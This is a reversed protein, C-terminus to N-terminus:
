QGKVPELRYGYKYPRDPPIRYPEMPFANTSWSDIGGVGMQMLDLHLYVEPRRELKFSYDAAEMAAVPYHSAGANLPTLGTARLGVGSGNTFEIWRVDTKNGNEQPRSYEVWEADVTSSYVGVREFKRDCYTEVPGRGYWRMNELGPALVLDTGFRPMMGSEKGGPTYSVEVTIAGTGTVHYAMSYTGGAALQGDYRILATNQDPRQVDFKTVRWGADRWVQVDLEARGELAKGGGRDNDTPARWFGPMPGHGILKAGGYTYDHFTATRDFTVSFDAGIIQVADSAESVELPASLEIRAGPVSYPLKWQEWALEHGAPAWPQATKLVFSLNLWYEVGPEPEIAPMPVTYERAQGPAIDLAPLAGAAIERGDAMVQWRAEAIDAANLFDYRNFMRVVGKALDVPEAHLYAYVYKLAYLGPHPKRDPSVLGNFNFNGDNRVGAPNEWWGGYAFFTDGAVPGRNRTGAPIRQRIGQDVWDWVFGGRANGGSNFIDWYEKLGGTSNGMSHAYECLILPMDPRKAAHAIVEAPTPYMFSNIESNPGGTSSSGEYHFPRSPDRRKSWKFVAAANPGDGSENGLSWMIISPHNKDREVMSRFRDIFLPEWAPDNTLRNKGRGGYGHAEINAEDIVYLGYRDCLEYFYPDNPYHSTRVANVNFQKMLVVDRETLERPVYKATDPSHEHRNVGKFLVPAGNILVKGGRIEVSRIGFSVPITELAAGSASRLTLYLKYLYPTEASWKRANPVSITLERPQDVPRTQQGGIRIGDPDFLDLVVTGPAAEDWTVEASVRVVADRYSRDLDTRIEFDRIHSSGRSILWVDRYIGSMRWFDQDELYSGDSFRYVEVALLNAGPRVLKTIDFEAPTRSDEHYGVKQGNVWVHFASDVGAFHLFVRRGQWDPPVTFRTRYSGVTNNRRPVVPEGNPGQPFPYIINSYIPIGCGHMEQSSPVPITGWRVDSFDERFFSAPRSDPSTSCQFKWNGNLLRYWPSRERGLAAREVDPYATFTAHPPEVGASIVSLDDWEPRQQAAAVVALLVLCLRFIM